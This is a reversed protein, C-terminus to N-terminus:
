QPKSKWLISTNPSTSIDRRINFRNKVLTMGTNTSTHKKHKSTKRNFTVSLPLCSANKSKNQEALLVSRDLKAVKKTQNEILSKEYGRKVFQDKITNIHAEFESNRSCIRTIRLAQSYPISGKLSRLHESNAHLYSQRDTPKKYLTIQLKGNIDKYM